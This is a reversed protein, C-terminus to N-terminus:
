SDGRKPYPICIKLFPLWFFVLNLIQLFINLVIFACLTIIPISFSCIWGLSLGDDSAEGDRLKKADSRLLNALKPPLAFAANPKLGALQAVDPLEIPPVPVGASDYWLAIVFPESPASWVLQPRCQPAENKVRIFCRVTYRRPAAGPAADFRGQSAVVRAAQADLCALTAAFNADAV